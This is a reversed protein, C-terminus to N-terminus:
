GRTAASVEHGWQRLRCVVALGALAIMLLVTSAPEPVTTPASMVMLTTMATHTVGFTDAVRLNIDHIGVFLDNVMAATLTPMAGTLMGHHDIEWQYSSIADGYELDPDTSASGDLTISNGATVVYPGGVRAVPARNGQDIRATISKSVQENLDNLISL